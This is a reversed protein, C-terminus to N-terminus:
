VTAARRRGRQKTNCEVRQVVFGDEGFQRVVFGILLKTLDRGVPTGADIVCTHRKADFVHSADLRVPLTGHLSEVAVLAILLTAEIDDSSVHAAFAFRYHEATM